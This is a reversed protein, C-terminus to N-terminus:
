RLTLAPGGLAADFAPASEIEWLQTGFGHRGGHLCNPGDNRDLAFTEGDIEMAAGAIRNAYRGVIVGFHPNREVYDDLADFGLVVNAGRGDRDPVHLQTVIGGLTIAVLTIGAGDSLTAEHVVRGDPLVGYDRISLGAPVNTNM